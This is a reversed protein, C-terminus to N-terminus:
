PQGGTEAERGRTCGDCPCIALLREWPYIGTGHGDSWSFHVAYAGVLRVSLARIDAPVRDPELMPRGSMEEVCAACQCALRLMRAGYRAVHGQEEWQIEIARGDELRAVRHPVPIRKVGPRM